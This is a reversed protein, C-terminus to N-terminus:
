RRRRKEAEEATKRDNCPICLMQLNADDNPDGPRDGWDALEIVHDLIRGVKRRCRKCM